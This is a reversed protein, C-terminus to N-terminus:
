RSELTDFSHVPYYSNTILGGEFQRHAGRANCPSCAALQRAV